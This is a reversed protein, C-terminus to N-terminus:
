IIMNIIKYCFELQEKTQVMAMRQHRLDIITEPINIKNNNLVKLITLLVGTRGVGASCHICIPYKQFGKIYNIFQIFSKTIPCEFDYWHIYQIHTIKRHEDNRHYILDRQIFDKTIYTEREVVIYNNKDDHENLIYKNNYDKSKWYCSCKIIDKEQLPTLMIITSTNTLWIMEWFDDITHTLPGQTAIYQSDIWSANIYKNPITVTNDDYPLINSYRNKLDYCFAKKVSKNIPYNQIFSFEDLWDQKKKHKLHQELEKKTFTYRNM